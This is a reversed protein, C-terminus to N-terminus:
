ARERRHRSKSLSLRGAAHHHHWGARRACLPALRYLEASVDPSFFGIPHM